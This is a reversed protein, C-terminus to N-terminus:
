NIIAIAPDPGICTTVDKLLHEQPTYSIPQALWSSCAMSFSEELAEAEIEAEVQSVM